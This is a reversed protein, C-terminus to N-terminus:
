PPKTMLPPPSVGRCEIVFFYNIFENLSALHLDWICQRTAPIFLLICESMKMFNRLFLAQNNLSKDFKDQIAIFDTSDLLRLLSAHSEQTFSKGLNRHNKLNSVGDVIGNRILKGIAPNWQLLKEICRRFLALYAEVSKKMHKGAKVQEVIALGLTEGEIFASDLGNDDIYKGVAKLM